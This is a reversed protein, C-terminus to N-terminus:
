ENGGETTAAPSVEDADIKGNKNSDRADFMALARARLEDLSVAGDGNADTKAFMNSARRPKFETGERSARKQASATFEESSISGNSDADMNKFRREVNVSVSDRTQGEKVKQAAAPSTAAVLAAFAFLYFKM